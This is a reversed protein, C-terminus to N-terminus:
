AVKLPLARRRCDRASRRPRARPPHAAALDRGTASSATQGFRAAVATDSLMERYCNRWSEQSTIPNTECNKEDIGTREARRASGAATGRACVVPRRAAVPLRRSGFRVSPAVERHGAHRNPNEPRLLSVRVAPWSRCGTGPLTLKADGLFEILLEDDPRPGGLGDAVAGRRGGNDTTAALAAGLDDRHPGRRSLRAFTRAHSRRGTVGHKLPLAAGVIAFARARHPRQRTASRHDDRIRWSEQPNRTGKADQRGESARAPVSRHPAARARIKRSLFTKVM